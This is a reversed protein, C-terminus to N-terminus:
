FRCPPLAPTWWGLRILEGLWFGHCEAHLRYTRGSRMELEYETQAQRIRDGCGHCPRGSGSCIWVTAPLKTPLKGDVLHERVRAALCKTESSKGRAELTEAIRHM